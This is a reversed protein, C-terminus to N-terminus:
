GHHWWAGIRAGISGIVGITLLATTGTGGGGVMGIIGFALVTGFVLQAGKWQKGTKEILVPRQPAPAVVEQRPPVYREWKEPKPQLAAIPRACRPCAAALDSVDQGCDPCAMLPM